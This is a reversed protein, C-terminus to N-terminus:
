IGSSGPLDLSEGPRGPRDHDRRLRDRGDDCPSRGRLGCRRKRDGPHVGGGEGPPHYGLGGQRFLVARQDPRPGGGGVGGSGRDQRDGGCQCMYDDFGKRIKVTVPKKIARVTQVRDGGGAESEEDARIGRRKESGEAGSLGYQYGPDPVASDEIREGAESMIEPDSGFLQLSVPYEEPILPCCRRQIEIKIHLAKASVMEMCFLGAGQEKCLLRFPLDTVGAM